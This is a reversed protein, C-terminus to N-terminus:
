KKAARLFPHGDDILGSPCDMSMDVYGKCADENDFSSEICGNSGAESTTCYACYAYASVCKKCDDPEQLCACASDGGSVTVKGEAADDSM